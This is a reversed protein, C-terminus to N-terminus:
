EGGGGVVGVERQECVGFGKKHQSMQLYSFRVILCFRNGHFSLPWYKGREEKSIM